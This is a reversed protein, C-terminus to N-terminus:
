PASAPPASLTARVPQAVPPAPVTKAGILRARTGELELSGGSELGFQDPPGEVFWTSGSGALRPEVGTANGLRDRWRALRPEISTAAVQLDNVGWRDAAETSDRPRSAPTGSQALSDWARYVAGTDMGFPLLLMTFERHEHGLPTVSEGIGRVMARGGILCFPVDAGLGAAIGLDTCGAWRLIAAADASGGGLGAGAPIRKILRVRATRDVSRLARVVLNDAGASIARVDVVPGDIVLENGPGMVLTDALDLTAMESEIRHYGDPRVGTVKLSLTLKAPASLKVTEESLNPNVARGPGDPGDTEM